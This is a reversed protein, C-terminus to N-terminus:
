MKIKQFQIRLIAMFLKFIAQSFRYFNSIEFHFHFLAVTQTFFFIYLLYPLNLFNSLKHKGM